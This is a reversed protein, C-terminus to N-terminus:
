PLFFRVHYYHTIDSQIISVNPKYTGWFESQITWCSVYHLPLKSLKKKQKSTACPRM